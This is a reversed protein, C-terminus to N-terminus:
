IASLISISMVPVYDDVTSVGIIKEVGKSDVRVNTIEAKWVISIRANLLNDPSCVAYNIVNTLHNWSIEDKYFSQVKEESMKCTPLMEHYSIVIRVDTINYKIYGESTRITWTTGNAFRYKININLETPTLGTHVLVYVSGYGGFAGPIKDVKGAIIPGRISGRLEVYLSNERLTYEITTNYTNSLSIPFEKIEGYIMSLNFVTNSPTSSASVVIYVADKEFVRIRMFKNVRDFIGIFQAKTRDNDRLLYMRAYVNNGVGETASVSLIVDRLGSPMECKVGIVKSSFPKNVSVKVEKSKSQATLVVQSSTMNSPYLNNSTKIPSGKDFLLYDIFWSYERLLSTKVHETLYKDLSTEADSMMSGKVVARWLSTFNGGFNAASKVLWDVFLATTYEHNGDVTSLPLEFYNMKIGSGMQGTNFAIKDAAYDATAEIWWRHKNMLLINMEQNQFLHFLEHAIEHKTESDSPSISSIIINGTFPTYYSEVSDIVYVSIKHKPKTFGAKVYIDYADELLTRVKAVFGFIERAGLGAANISSDFMIKFNPSHAVTYKELSILAWLSFHYTSVRVEREVPDYECPVEVYVKNREDYYAVTYTDELSRNIAKTEDSIRFKIVAPTNLSESKSLVEYAVVVKGVKSQPVYSPEVIEVREKSSLAGRPIIVAFSKDPLSITGGELPIEQSALIRRDQRIPIVEFLLLVAILGAVIFVAVVGKKM